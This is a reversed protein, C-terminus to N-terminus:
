ASCKVPWGTRAVQLCEVICVSTRAVQLEVICVSTRAVQLEVICVSTRAVQLEVICQVQGPWRYSM